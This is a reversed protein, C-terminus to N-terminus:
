APSTNGYARGGPADCPNPIIAGSAQALANEMTAATHSWDALRARELSAHKAVALRDPNQVLERMADIVSSLHDVDVVRAAGGCAEPLGGRDSALVACGSAMAELTVLGFPEQSRSLVCAIDHERVVAPVRERPLHGLYDAHAEKMRQRLTDFYPDALKRGNEFFWRGGVVTLEVPMGEARLAAVADVALDVGKNPDIRGLALVKVPRRPKDFNDRPTFAELDVGNHVVSFRDATLGFREQTFRRIYDSNTVIRDVAALLQEPHQHRTHQENHLWLVQRTDPFTHKLMAPTHMDNEIMIVHPPQDFRRIAHRVAQAYVDQRPWDYRHIRYRLKSVARRWLSLDDGMPCRIPIFRGVDYPKDGHNDALITVEHGRHVLGRAVQMVCTAIAGGSTPSYREIPPLPFCIRV